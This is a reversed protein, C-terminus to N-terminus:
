FAMMSVFNPRRGLFHNYLMDDFRREFDNLVDIMVKIAFILTEKESKLDERNIADGLYLFSNYGHPDFYNFAETCVLYIGDFLASLELAFPTVCKSKYPLMESEPHCVCIAYQWYGQEAPYNRDTRFWKQDRHCDLYVLDSLLDLDARAVSLVRYVLYAKRLVKERKIARLEDFFDSFHDDVIDYLRNSFSRMMVEKDSLHALSKMVSPKYWQIVLNLEPLFTEDLLDPLGHFKRFYNKKLRRVVNWWALEREDM